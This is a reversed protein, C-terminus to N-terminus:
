RGYRGSQIGSQMFENYDRADSWALFVTQTFAVVVLALLVKITAKRTRRRRNVAKRLLQTATARRELEENLFDQAGKM